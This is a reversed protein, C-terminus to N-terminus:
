QYINRGLGGNSYNVPGIKDATDRLRQRMQVWTLDPERALILAAIGAALPCAASTGGFTDTYDGSGYGDSGTRDTTYIFRTGGDSPAVFDLQSGYQSYCSRYNYNTSAGVAITEDYRAPYNPTTQADTSRNAVASYKPVELYTYQDHWIDGSKVSKVDAGYFYHKNDDVTSWYAPISAPYGNWGAWSYWGQPIGDGFFEVTGSPFQICDLWVSDEGGSVGDPDKRYVFGYTHWGPSIACSGDLFLNPPIYKSSVFEEFGDAENGTSFFVQCGKDGRGYRVADQIAEEVDPYNPVYWSCSLIDAYQAAYSIADAIKDDSCFANKGEIIKIPLITTLPAIGVGGLTNNCSAIVGACATGHNDEPDIPDVVNNDDYFNWGHLDPAGANPNTWINAALDPHNTQVGNDIVALDWAQNADVDAELSGGGQGTNKLHWQESFHPDNPEWHLKIECLFVPHSWEIIELGKYWQAIEFLDKEKAKKVSLLYVNKRFKGAKRMKIHPPNVALLDNESYGEKLKVTIEDTLIMALGSQSSYFVPSIFQVESKDKLKDIIEAALDEEGVDQFTYLHTNKRKGLKKKEHGKGKKVGKIMQEILSPEGTIAVQDRSRLLHVKGKKSFYFDGKDTLKPADVAVKASLDEPREQYPCYTEYSAPQSAALSKDQAGLFLSIFLAIFLFFIISSFYKKNLM